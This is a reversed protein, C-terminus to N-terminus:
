SIPPCRRKLASSFAVCRTPWASQMSRNSSITWRVKSSRRCRTSNTLGYATVFVVEARRGVSRAADIGNMGPMHVDLFVIQPQREDFLELLGADVILADFAVEVSARFAQAVSGIWIARVAARALLASLESDPRVSEGVFLALRAM